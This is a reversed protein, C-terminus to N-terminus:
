RSTRSVSGNMTVLERYLLQLFVACSLVHMSSLVSFCHKLSTVEKRIFGILDDVKRM